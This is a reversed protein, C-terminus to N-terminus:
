VVEALLHGLHVRFQLEATHELQEHGDDKTCLTGVLTDILDGRLQKEVVRVGLGHGRCLGFVQQCIDAAHGIGIGLGVMQHLHSTYQHFLVTALHRGVHVLQQFQGAYATLGGVDDLAHGEALRREGDVGMDETHGVAHSQDRRAVVGGVLYLQCQGTVNRGLIDGAGVVPQQEVASVNASGAFGMALLAFEGM